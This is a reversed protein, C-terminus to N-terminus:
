HTATSKGREDFEYRKIFKTSLGQMKVQFEGILFSRDAGSLESELKSFLDREHKQVKTMSINNISLSARPNLCVSSSM